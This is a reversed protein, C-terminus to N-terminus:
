SEKGPIKTKEAAIKAKEIEALQRAEEAAAELELDLMAMRAQGERRVILMDYIALFVVLVVLIFVIGWFAIFGAPNGMLKDGLFVFGGFALFMALATLGFLLNRRYKRHRLIVFGTALSLAVKESPANQSGPIEVKDPKKSVRENLCLAGQFVMKFKGKEAM